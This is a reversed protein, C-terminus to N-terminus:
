GVDKSNRSLMWHAAAFHDGNDHHLSRVFVMKDARRAHEPLMERLRIGPVNTQITKYPGRYEAPADPKPDYTELQSPGGDLWLLIVATEQLAASQQAQLRLLDPLSMGLLGLFGAKLATRRSIGQCNRGHDHYQLQLM